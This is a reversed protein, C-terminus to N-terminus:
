IPPPEMGCRLPRSTPCGSKHHNMGCRLPSIHPVWIQPPEDWMELALHPAGLKTNTLPRPRPLHRHRPQHHRRRHLRHHQPTISASTDGNVTEQRITAFHYQFRPAGAPAFDSTPAYYGAIRGNTIARTWNGPTSHTTSLPGGMLSQLEAVIAPDSTHGNPSGTFHRFFTAVEDDTAFRWGDLPKRPSMNRRLTEQSKNRSESLRLWELHTSQDLLASRKGFSTDTQTFATQWGTYANIDAAAAAAPAPSLAPPNTSHTPAPNSYGLPRPNPHRTPRGPRLHPPHHRQLRHTRPVPRHRPRRALLTPSLHRRPHPGPHPPRSRLRHHPLRRPQAAQIAALNAFTPTSNALTCRIQPSGFEETRTAGAFTRQRLFFPRCRTSGLGQSGPTPTGSEAHLSFSEGPLFAIRYLRSASPTPAPIAHTPASDDDGLTPGLASLTRRRGPSCIPPLLTPALLEAPHTPDAPLPISTLAAARQCPPSDPAPSNTWRITQHATQNPQISSPTQPHPLNSPSPPTDPASSARSPTPPSSAPRRHSTKQSPRSSTHPPPTTASASPSTSTPPPASASQAQAALPLLSLALLILRSAAHARPRAPM